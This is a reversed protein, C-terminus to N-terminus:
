IDPFKKENFTFVEHGSDRVVFDVDGFCKSACLPGAVTLITEGLEDQIIFEPYLTCFRPEKVYGIVTGPPSQVELEQMCCNFPRVLHVVEQGQTDSIIMSFSRLSGLCLRSCLSSDEVASFIKQGTQDFVTYKNVTEFGTIVELVEVEQKIMLHDVNALSELGLAAPGHGPFAATYHDPQSTVPSPDM